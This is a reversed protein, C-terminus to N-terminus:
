FAIIQMLRLKLLQASQPLRIAFTATTVCTNLRLAPSSQLRNQRKQQSSKKQM